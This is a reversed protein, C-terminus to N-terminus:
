EIQGIRQCASWSLALNLARISYVALVPRYRRCKLAACARAPARGARGAPNGVTDSLLVAPSIFRNTILNTLLNAM